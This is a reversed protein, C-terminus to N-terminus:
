GYIPMPVTICNQHGNAVLLLISSCNWGAGLVLASTLSLVSSSCFPQGFRTSYYYWYFQFETCRNTKNVLFSHIFKMKNDKAMSCQFIMSKNKKVYQPFQTHWMRWCKLIEAKWQGCTTNVRKRHNESYVARDICDLPLTNGTCYSKFTQYQKHQCWFYCTEGRLGPSM